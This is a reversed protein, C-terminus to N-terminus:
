SKNEKKREKEIQLALYTVMQVYAPLIRETSCGERKRQGLAVFFNKYRSTKCVENSTLYIVIELINFNKVLGFM